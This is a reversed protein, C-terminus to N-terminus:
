PYCIWLSLVTSRFVCFDAFGQFTFGDCLCPRVVSVDQSVMVCHPSGSRQDKGTDHSTSVEFTPYSSSHDTHEFDASAPWQLGRQPVGGGVKMPESPREGNGVEVKAFLMSQALMDLSESCSCTLCAESCFIRLIPSKM